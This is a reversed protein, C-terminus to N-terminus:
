NGHWITLPVVVAPAACWGRCNGQCGDDTCIVLEYHELDPGWGVVATALHRCAHPCEGAPRREQESEPHSRFWHIVEGPHDIHIFSM